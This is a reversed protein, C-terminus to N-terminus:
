KFFKVNASTFSLNSGVINIVDNSFYPYSLWVSDKITISSPSVSVIESYVNGSDTVNTGVLVRYTNDIVTTLDLGSLNSFTIINNSLITTNATLTGTAPPSSYPTNVDVYYQLTHAQSPTNNVTSVFTSKSTLVYRGLVKMGSPHLLNLLINRYKAIEKNVTIQYTFNNYIDSQLVSYSSLQSRSTLYQGQSIVLGNLFSATAKASGDGYRRIGTTTYLNNFTVNSTVPKRNVMNLSINKNVVKLPQTVSPDSTYNFIRMNYVSNASNIDSELISISNVYATYTALNITAGQYIVDGEQPLTSINVNSVLIDQVKLSVVPTSVYDEGNDLLNVTTVSGARDVIVSFTAGSGLTSTVQLDAGHAQTNASSVSLTPLQTLNYGLGGLPCDLGGYVYAVNAIAGSGTVHTVNAYAGYGSGGTFIIKDNAVYGHGGNNIQIPALIGLSGLISTNGTENYYLSDAEVPPVELLGSGGDVVLVSSIPYTYFSDYTFADSLKTNINATLRGEFNYNVINSTNGIYVEKKFGITDIPIRSVFATNSPNPDLSGIIANAKDVGIIKLVTNPYATYGFGGRTVTIRQISGATTTGVEALAALPNATDPNLGGYVIVPDHPKYLLGRNNPDIKISSIQGVVKARLIESGITGIPVQKGNKFYIDQNNNDVVRVFEGSNFLREINSIFIEIKGNVYVGNEITAISKTTEGFIRLNSTKTFNSDNSALKLSRAVYWDGDSAKLIADKTYYLDFDSNYLVRFLFQYSAPTGKSRYLQRAVKVAREKSILAEQPFYPLFDNTFYDIFKDTTNDIDSYSLLNKSTDLTNDNQEMWEYYAQVFAVFNEYDPDDRIFGPLQSPILLSTKQSSSIM